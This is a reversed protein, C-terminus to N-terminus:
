PCCAPLPWTGVSAVQYEFCYYMLALIELAFLEQHQADDDDDDDDDHVVRLLTDQFREMIRIVVVHTHGCYYMM